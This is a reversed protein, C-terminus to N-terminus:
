GGSDRYSIKNQKKTGSCNIESKSLNTLAKSESVDPIVVSKDFENEKLHDKGLPLRIVFESGPENEKRRAFIIGHAM